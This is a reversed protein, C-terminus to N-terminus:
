GTFNVNGPTGGATRSASWRAPESAASEVDIRALAAASGDAGIPWRGGDNYNVLDMVRGNKNELRIEEGGNSLSGSWPGLAGTGTLSPDGPTAAIVLYGHGPIVTDAPITYTVAGALKWGGVELNVGQLNHFEIWESATGVPHYQIESIIATSDEDAPSVLPLVGFFVILLVIFLRSPVM